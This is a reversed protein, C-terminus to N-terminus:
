RKIATLRLTPEDVNTACTITNGACRIKLYVNITSSGSLTYNFVVTRGPFNGTAPPTNFREFELTENGEAAGTQDFIIRAATINVTDYLYAWLFFAEVQITITTTLPNTYSISCATVTVDGPAGGALTADEFAVRDSLVDTAFYVPIVGVQM